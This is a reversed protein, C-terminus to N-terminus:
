VNPLHRRILGLIRERDWVAFKYKEAHKTRILVGNPLIALTNVMAVSEIDDLPIEQPNHEGRSHPEFIIRQDTIRIRGEVCQLGHFLNAAVDAVLAEGQRLDYAM